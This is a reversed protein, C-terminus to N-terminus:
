MPPPPPQPPKMWYSELYIVPPVKWQLWRIWVKLINELAFINRWLILSPLKNRSETSRMTRICIFSVWLFVCLFYCTLLFLWVFIHVAYSSWKGKGNDRKSVKIYYIQMDEPVAIMVYAFAARQVSPLYKRWASISNSQLQITCFSPSNHNAECWICSENDDNGILIM